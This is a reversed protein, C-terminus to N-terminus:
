GTIPEPIPLPENVLPDEAIKPTSIRSEATSVRLWVVPWPPEPIPLPDLEEDVDSTSFGLEMMPYM